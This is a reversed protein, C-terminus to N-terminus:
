RAGTARATPASGPASGPAATRLGPREAETGAPARTRRNPRSAFSPAGLSAGSRYSRRRPCRRRKRGGRRARHTARPPPMPAAGRLAGDAAPRWRPRAPPSRRCAPQAVAGSRLVAEALRAPGQVGAAAGGPDAPAHGAGQRGPGHRPPYRQPLRRGHEDGRSSGRRRGAASCSTSPPPPLARRTAPASRAPWPGPCDASIRRRRSARSQGTGPGVPPVGPWYCGVIAPVSPAPPRSPLPSCAPFV